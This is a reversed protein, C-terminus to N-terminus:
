EQFWVGLATSSVPTVRQWSGEPAQAQYSAHRGVVVRLRQGERVREFVLADDEGLIPTYNAEAFFDLHSARFQLLTQLLRQKHAASKQNDAPPDSTLWQQRAAYDVLRRNDPDVLSQEWGEAGQFIDPFGPVTCKLVVQAFINHRAQPWITDLLSRLPEQLDKHSLITRALETTADEVEKNPKDWGSLIKGERLAKILYDALREALKSDEVSGEVPYSAVLSQLILYFAEPAVSSWDVASQVAKVFTKWAQPHFSVAQLIARSDEGRKTDHTSTANMTTSPRSQIFEHFDRVRMRDHPDATGGVENLHAQRYFQYFTTDEVGKAMLPGSLQQTRQMVELADGQFDEQSMWQIFALTSVSREPAFQSVQLAAEQCHLLEAPTLRGGSPYIRYVPFAALFHALTDPFENDYLSAPVIAKWRACLNDLEGHFHERVLMLKNRFVLEKYNPLSQKTIDEYLGSFIEHSHDNTL